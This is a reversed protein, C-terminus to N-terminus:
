WVNFGGKKRLTLGTKLGKMKSGETLLLRLQTVGTFPVNRMTGEATIFCGSQIFVGTLTTATVIGSPNRCFHAGDEAKMGM